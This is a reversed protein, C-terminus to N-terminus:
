AAAELELADLNWICGSACDWGYYWMTDLDLRAQWCYPTIIIGDYRDAVRPWNIWHSSIELHAFQPHGKYEATFAKIEDIGTLTLINAGPALAIPTRHALTHLGWNEARCWEPWDLEGDVSVWLGRPKGNGFEGQDYTRDLDLTFPKDTYHSLNM